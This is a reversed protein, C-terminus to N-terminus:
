LHQMFAILKELSNNLSRKTLMMNHVLAKNVYVVHLKLLKLSLEQVLILLLDIGEEQFLDPNQEKLVLMLREEGIGFGVAPTEPGDFEEVLHNYRGGGLITTASEWLNKDEVMFEFIIGTYYDLGRVLDDDMVYNIGLQELM